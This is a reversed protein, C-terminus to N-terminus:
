YSNPKLRQTLSLQIFPHQTHRDLKGYGVMGVWWPSSKYERLELFTYTHTLWTLYEVVHKNGCWLFVLRTMSTIYVGALTLVAWGPFMLLPIHTHTHRWSPITLAAPLCAAAPLQQWPSGSLRQSAIIVTQLGNISTCTIFLPLCTIFLVSEIRCSLNFSFDLNSEAMTPNSLLWTCGEHSGILSWVNHLVVKSGREKLEWGEGKDRGVQRVSRDGRWGGM